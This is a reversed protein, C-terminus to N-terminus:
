VVVLSFVRAGLRGWLVIIWTDGWEGLSYRGIIAVEIEWGGGGQARWLLPRGSKGPQSPKWGCSLVFSRVVLLSLVLIQRLPYSEVREGGQPPQLARPERVAAANRMITFVAM